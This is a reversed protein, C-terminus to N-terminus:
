LNSSQGILAQLKEEIKKEISNYFHPNSLNEIEKRYSNLSRPSIKHIHKCILQDKIAAIKKCVEVSLNNLNIFPEKNIERFTFVLDEKLKLLNQPNILDSVLYIPIGNKHLHRMNKIEKEIRLLSDDIDKKYHLKVEKQKDYLKISFDTMEIKKGYCISNKYCQSFSKNKYDKIFEITAIPNEIRINCGYELKLVKAKFIDFGLYESLQNIAKELESLTFDCYNNGHYFKHISNEIILQDKIFTLRLNKLSAIWKVVYSQIIVPNFVIGNFDISNTKGYFLHALELCLISIKLNDIM